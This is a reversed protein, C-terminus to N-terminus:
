HARKVNQNQDRRPSTPEECERRWGDLDDTNREHAARDRDGPEGGRIVAKHGAARFSLKRSLRLRNLTRASPGRVPPPSVRGSFVLPPTIVTRSMMVVLTKVTGASMGNFCTAVRISSYPIEPSGTTSSSCDTTPTNDSASM